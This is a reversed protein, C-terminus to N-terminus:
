PTGEASDVFGRCDIITSLFSSLDDLLGTGQLSLIVSLTTASVDPAMFAGLVVTADGLEAPHAILADLLRVVAVRLDASQNKRAAAAVDSLLDEVPLEDITLYDFLMAPVAAESDHRDVCGMFAAMTAFTEGQEDVLLSALDLLEDLLQEAEADGELLPVFVQNLLERTPALEFDPASINAALLKALVIFADRGVVIDDADDAASGDDGIAVRELLSQFAPVGQARDALDVLAGLFSSEGQGREAIEFARASGPPTRRVELALVDRVVRINDVPDCNVVVAHAAAMPEPHPGPVFVSTGNLYDMVNIIHPMMADITAGTEDDVVAALLTQAVVDDLDPLVVSALNLVTKLGSGEVLIRELHPRLPDFAGADLQANASALVVDAAPCVDDDNPGVSHPAEVGEASCAAGVVAATVAVSLALLLAKTGRRSM